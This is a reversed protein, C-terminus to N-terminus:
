RRPLTQIRVQYKHPKGKRVSKRPTITINALSLSMKPRFSSKLMEIANKTIKEPAQPPAVVRVCSYLM